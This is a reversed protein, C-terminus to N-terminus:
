RLSPNARAADLQEVLEPLLGAGGLMAVEITARAASRIVAVPRGGLREAASRGIDVTLIEDYGMECRGAVGMSTGELLLADELLALRGAHAPGRGTRWLVAYTMCRIKPLPRRELM